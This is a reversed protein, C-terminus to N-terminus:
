PAPTEVPPALRERERADSARAEEAQHVRAEIEARRVRAAALAREAEARRRLTEILTVAADAIREARDASAADGAARDVGARDLAREAARVLDLEGEQPVALADLRARLAAEDADAVSPAAALAVGLLVGLAILWLACSRM